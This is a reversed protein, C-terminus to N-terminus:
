EAPPAEAVKAHYLKLTDAIEERRAEIKHEQLGKIKEAYKEKWMKAMAPTTVSSQLFTDSFEYFAGLSEFKDPFTIEPEGANQDLVDTIKNGDGKAEGEAQPQAPGGEPPAATAAPPAEPAPKAGPAPEPHDARTPEKTPVTTAHGDHTVDVLDQMEEASKLGRLVDAFRDRFAWARARISMMRGPTQTWPGQKQLWGAKACQARTVIQEGWTAEGKRKVRCIAAQPVGNEDVDLTEQIDELLGSARVLAVLGDGFVSPTGNIIAISQLSAFPTFGVEMGALIAVAAKETNGEYAKPAMGARVIAGAIQVVENFNTPVIAAVKAGAQMAPLNATAATETKAM